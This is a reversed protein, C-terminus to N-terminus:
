SRLQFVTRWGLWRCNKCSSNKNPSSVYEQNIESINAYRQNTHLKAEAQYCTTENYVSEAAAAKQGYTAGSVTAVLAVSLAVTLVAKKITSTKILKVGGLKTENLYVFSVGIKDM